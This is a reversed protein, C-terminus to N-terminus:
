SAPSDDAALASGPENEDAWVEDSYPHEGEARLPSVPCEAGEPAEPARRHTRRITRDSGPNGFM